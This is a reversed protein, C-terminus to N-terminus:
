SPSPPTVDSGRQRRRERRRMRWGYVGDMGASIPVAVVIFVVIMVGVLPENRVALLMRALMWLLVALLGLPILTALVRGPM